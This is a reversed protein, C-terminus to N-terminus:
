ICYYIGLHLDYLRGKNYEAADTEPTTPSHLKGGLEGCNPLSKIQTRLYESRSLIAFHASLLHELILGTICYYFVFRFCWFLQKFNLSDPFM